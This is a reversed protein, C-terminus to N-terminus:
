ENDNAFQVGLQILDQQQVQIGLQMCIRWVINGFLHEPLSFNTSSGAAYVQRGSATTFGWIPDDPNKIYVLEVNTLNAPYLQFHTNYEVAIPRFKSPKRLESSRRNALQNDGILDIEKTIFEGNKNYAYNYMASFFLYNDPKAFQGDSGVVKKEQVKLEGMSDSSVLGAEFRQRQFNIEDKQAMFAARNFRAATVYGTNQDKRGLDEVQEKVENVNIAM